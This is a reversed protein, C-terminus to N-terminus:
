SLGSCDRVIEEDAEEGDELLCPVFGCLVAALVCVCVIHVLVYPLM